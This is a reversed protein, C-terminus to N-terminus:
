IKGLLGNLIMEAALVTVVTAFVIKLVRVNARVLVRAGLMSGALVGLMVPMALGPDIYGRNLYIGAVVSHSSIQLRQGHTIQQVIHRHKQIGPHIDVYRQLCGIQRGPFSDWATPLFHDGSGAIIDDM